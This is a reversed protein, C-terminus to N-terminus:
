SNEGGGNISIQFGIDGGGLTGTKYGGIDGGGKIKARYGIDGGGNITKSSLISPTTLLITLLLTRM